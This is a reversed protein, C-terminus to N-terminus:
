VRIMSSPIRVVARTGAGEKSELEVQGGCEELLRRCEPLGLGAPRVSRRTSFYPQFAHERIFESMGIGRDLIEVVLGESERRAMIQVWQHEESARIANEALNVLVSFLLSSSKLEVCPISGVIALRCDPHLGQVVAVVRELTSDLRGPRSGSVPHSTASEMLRDVVRLADDSLVVIARALELTEGKLGHESVLKRGYSEIVLLPKGLDHAWGALRDRAEQPQSM